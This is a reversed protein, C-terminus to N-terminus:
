VCHTAVGWGVWVWRPFARRKSEMYDSLAKDCLELESQLNELQAMLGEKNCCAVCNKVAHMERLIEKVRRDIEAFRTATDPLEKKVEESHIFLSELHSWSRQIETLLQNVDYVNMLKANWGLIADRFTNMYRNAMMGQVLVQNEELAEFDEEKMKVMHVDTEKFRQFDLEAVAWLDELKRLNMEMKEEKQARDVIEGVDEEFKHLELALLDGLRFSEDIVFQKQTAEMLLAWHRDRMAPSRLDGILPVSVMFNKIDTQLAKYAGSDRISKDLSKLEKELAKVGDEMEEVVVRGWVVDRWAAVQTQVMRTVDWCAKISRLEGMMGRITAVAPEVLDPLNLVFASAQMDRCQKKLLVLERLVRQMQPYASDLSGAVFVASAEFDRKFQRLEGREFDKFRDRLEDALRQRYPEFEKSVPGAADKKVEAWRDVLDEVEKEEKPMPAKLRRMQGALAVLTDLELEVMDRKASIEFLAEAVKTQKDRSEALAEANLSMDLGMGQREVWSDVSGIREALQRKVYGRLDWEQRSQVLDLSMAVSLRSSAVPSGLVVLLERVVLLVANDPLWSPSCQLATQWEMTELDLVYADFLRKGEADRGGAVVVKEGSTGLRTVLPSTRPCPAQGRTAPDVAVTFRPKTIRGAANACDKGPRMVVLEGLVVTSGDGLMAEGGFMVVAGGADSPVYGAGAKRRPAPMRDVEMPGKAEGEIDMVQFTGAFEGGEEGGYNVVLNNDIAVLTHNKRGGRGVAPDLPKVASLAAVSDLSKEGAPAPSADAAASASAAAEGEADGDAEGEAAGAAAGGTSSGEGEGEAAAAADGEGEGEGAGEGEAAAAEGEGEEDEEGEAISDNPGLSGHWHDAEADFKGPRVWAWGHEEHKLVWMDNLEKGSRAAPTEGCTMVLTDRGFQALQANRRPPPAEDGDVHVAEWQWEGEECLLSHVEVAAVGGCLVVRRAQQLVAVAVGEAYAPPQGLVRPNAFCDVAQVPFPSGRIPTEAHQAPADGGGDAPEEALEVYCVEVRYAGPEPVSYFVEYTGNDLDVVRATGRVRGDVSVPSVHFRDGGSRRNQNLTDKAQILFSVEFGAPVTPRFPEEAQLPHRVNVHGVGPGMALCHHAATNAFYNFDLKNVTWGEDNISARLDVPYAGYSEFNPTRCTLTEADVFAGEVTEEMKGSGFKVRVKGPKFSLGKITVETSGFVPGINPSVSLAAYPPGIIPSVNMAWCDGLWQNSWGGFLVLQCARNDYFWATDERGAPPAGECDPSRWKLDACDMVQVGGSFNMPGRQGGFLFMKWHPVSEVASFQHNCLESPYHMVRAPSDM